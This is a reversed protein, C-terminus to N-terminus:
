TSCSYLANHKGAEARMKRTPTDGAEPRNDAPRRFCRVRALPTAFAFAHHEYLPCLDIQEGAEARMKCTTTDGAEPRYDAPHRLYSIGLNRSWLRLSLSLYRKLLCFLLVNEFINKSVVCQIFIVQLINKRIVWGSPCRV